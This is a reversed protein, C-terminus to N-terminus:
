QQAKPNKLYELSEKKLYTTQLNNKESRYRTMKKDHDKASFISNIRM